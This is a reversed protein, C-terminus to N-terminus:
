KNINASSKQIYVLRMARKPLLSIDILFISYMAGDLSWFDYM